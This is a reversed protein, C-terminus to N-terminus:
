GHTSRRRPTIQSYPLQRAEFLLRRLTPNRAAFRTPEITVDGDGGSIWKRRKISAAKLAPRLQRNCPPAPIVASVAFVVALGRLM